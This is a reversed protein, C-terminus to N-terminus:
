VAGATISAALGMGDSDPAAAYALLFAVAFGFIMALLPHRDFFSGEDRKM